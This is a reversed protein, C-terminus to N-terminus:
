IKRLYANIIIQTEDITIQHDDNLDNCSDVLSFIGLYQVIAKQVEYISTLNDRNCDGPLLVNINVKDYSKIGLNDTVMLTILFTGHRNYSYEHTQNKDSTSWDMVGDGNFDWEYLVIWKTSDRHYSQSHDFTVPRGIKVEIPVAQAFATPGITFIQPLLILVGFSTDVFLGYSNVPSEWKGDIHQSNILGSTYENYWDHTGIYQVNEGKMEYSKMGKMVAYIAYLDGINYYYPHGSPDMYATGWEHDIFSLAHVTRPHTYPINTLALGVLGAGTKGVNVWYNPSSYGFGGNEKNQGFYLFNDKLENKIYSPITISSGLLYEAAELGMLPFRTVSMDSERFNADYRWGGRGGGMDPEVQAYALYDILAQVTETLTPDKLTSLATLVLGTEYIRHGNKVYLGRGNHNSDPNRLSGAVTEPGICIPYLHDLIYNKARIVNEVYPNNPDGSPHHGNLVWAHLALATIGASYDYSIRGYDKGGSTFRVMNKHLWWLADDIAVNVKVGQSPNAWFKIPYTASASEGSSDIVFLTANFFTDVNASYQHYTELNYPTSTTSTFPVSGDGFDWTYNNYPPTGGKVVAKLITQRGLYADHPLIPSDPSWPVIQVQLPEPPPDIGGTVFFNRTESQPVYDIQSIEIHEYARVNWTYWRGESLIFPPIALSTDTILGSKWIPEGLHMLYVQYAMANPVPNWSFILDNLNVHSGNMPNILTPINLKNPTYDNIQATVITQNGETDLVRITFTGVVESPSVHTNLENDKSTWWFEGYPLGKDLFAQYKQYYLFHLKDKPGLATVSKISALQCGSPDEGEVSIQLIEKNDDRRLIFGIPNKIIPPSGTPVYNTLDFDASIFNGLSAILGIQESYQYRLFPDYIKVTYIEGPTLNGFYFGPWDGIQQADILHRASDHLVINMYRVGVDPDGYLRGRIAADLAPNSFNIGTRIEGVSLLIPDASGWDSKNNFYKQKYLPGRCFNEGGIRIRYESPPLGDISYNGSSDTCRGYGRHNGEAVVNIGVGGSGTVKGSITAGM